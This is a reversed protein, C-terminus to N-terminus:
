SKYPQTFTEVLVSHKECLETCTKIANSHMFSWMKVAPAIADTTSLANCAMLLKFGRSHAAPQSTHASQMKFNCVEQRKGSDNVRCQMIM